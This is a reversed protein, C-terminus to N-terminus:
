GAIQEFQEALLVAGNQRSYRKVTASDPMPVRGNRLAGIFMALQTAIGAVDDIPAVEAGGIARLVSATDGYTSTLAFIPRRIRLYEYLKAPIQRDFKAGQFLLLADASAQELLADRYPIPPLFCVMKELRLRQVERAYTKESQSARFVVKLDGVAITGSDRIQALATLFPLANRGDSYLVGSHLLVLPQGPQRASVAPLDAFAHEDYGNEVVALRGEAQRDPYRGAYDRLTGPTTFVSRSATHLVRSEWLRLSLGVRSGADDVSSAVPDRFDAIWPLGTIRHLSHAICHATMIPYTSWIARVDHRRILRLGQRVASLRWSSWRDPVALFGPYKGAIALHRRTDLAFTRRVVCGHPITGPSIAATLPYAMARASLVIPDWGQDPLYRAFGLTRLHGSGMAAPPFHFAVMLVARGM